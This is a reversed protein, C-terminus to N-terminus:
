RMYGTPGFKSPATPENLCHYLLASIRHRLMFGMSGSRLPVAGCRHRLMFGMSGSRLPVAGCRHLMCRPVIAGHYLQAM